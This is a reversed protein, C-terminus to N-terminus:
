INIITKTRKFSQWKMYTASRWFWELPGYLFHKLWQKSAIIQLAYIILGLIFLETIGLRGFFSGLEWSSFLMAGVVNQVEYNTLGMRGYPSLLDLYKGLIKTQYLVIFGMALVGSQFLMSLDNLTSAIISNIPVKLGQSVHLFLNIPNEPTFLQVLLKSVIAAIFFGIFLIYNKRKKINVKEFFGTRGVVFGLIFLAFVMYGTSSMRFQYHLKEKTNVFINDKASELFSANTIFIDENTTANLTESEVNNTDISQNLNIATAEKLTINDFGVISMLPLGLLILSTITILVWNKLPFLLVLIIGYFAYLTLIDMYAFTTGVIGIVFLIVMRWLFRGRFDIGRKSARDMQIFFSLGFLFSFITIFRGAIVHTVLLQIITDFMPYRAIETVNVSLYGFKQLMHILIVGLLSFGRLADIVNIRKQSVLISKDVEM